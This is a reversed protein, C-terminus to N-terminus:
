SCTQGRIFHKPTYSSAIYFSIHLLGGAQDRPSCGHVPVQWVRLLHRAFIHSPLQNAATQSPSMFDLVTGELLHYYFAQGQDRWSFVLTEIERQMYFCEHSMIEKSIGQVRIKGLLLLSTLDKM